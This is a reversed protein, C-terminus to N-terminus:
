VLGEVDEELKMGYAFFESISIVIIGFILGTLLVHTEVAGRSILKIIATGIFQLVPMTVSFIGIERVMRVIDKQFPTEGKSFWTKGAATKYILYINRFIMVMCLSVPISIAFLILMPAKLVNGAGDAIHVGFGLVNMEPSDLGVKLVSYVWDPNVASMVTFFVAAATFILFFIELFKAMAPVFKKM